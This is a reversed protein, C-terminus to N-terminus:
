FCMKLPNPKRQVPPLDRRIRYDSGQAPEPEVEVTVQRFAAKKSAKECAKCNHKIVLYPAASHSESMAMRRIGRTFLRLM